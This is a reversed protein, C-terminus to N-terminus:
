TRNQQWLVKKNKISIRAEGEVDQTLTGGHLFVTIRAQGSAKINVRAGNHVDVTIFAHGGANITIESGSKAWIQGVAFNDYFAKGETGEYAVLRRANKVSFREGEFINYNRRIDAFEKRLRESPFDNDEVFDFGGFYLAVLREKNAASLIYNYWEACIGAEKAEKALEKKLQKFDM